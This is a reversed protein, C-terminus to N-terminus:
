FKVYTQVGAFAGLPFRSQAPNILQADPKVRLWPTVAFDYFVEVAYEDRLSLVPAVARRLTNSLAFRSLSVGFRDDPRSQIPSSGSIGFLYNIQFITPNSDTRTISGFIGWGRNPNNPDQIIYQQFSLGVTWSGRLKSLIPGLANDGPTVLDFIDRFDTGAKTTYGGSVTYFGTRGLIATKYIASGLAAAGNKFLHSFLPENLSDIPDYIMLSFSVPQTKVSIRAAGLSAATIGNSTLAPNLNWFMDVGGGGAIPRYRISEVLNIKGIDITVLKGITQTIHLDVIDLGDTNQVNPFFLASNAAFV